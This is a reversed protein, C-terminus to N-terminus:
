FQSSAESPCYIFCFFYAHTHERIRDIRQVPRHGISAPLILLFYGGGEWRIGDNLIEGSIPFDCPIIVASSTM